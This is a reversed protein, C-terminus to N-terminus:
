GCHEKMDMEVCSGEEGEGGTFCSESTSEVYMYTFIYIPKQTNKSKMYEHLLFSVSYIRKFRAEKTVLKQSANM